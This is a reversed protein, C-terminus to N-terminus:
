AARRNRIADVMRSKATGLNEPFSAIVQACAAREAMIACAIITEVDMSEDAVYVEAHDLAKDWVDQPIDDPKTM